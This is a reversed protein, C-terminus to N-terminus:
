DNTCIHIPLGSRGCALLFAAPLMIEFQENSLWGGM